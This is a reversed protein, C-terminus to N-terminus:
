LGLWTRLEIRHRRHSYAHLISGGTKNVDRKLRPSHAPSILPDTQMFTRSAVYTKAQRFAQKTNM